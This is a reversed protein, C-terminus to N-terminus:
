KEVHFTPLTIQFCHTGLINIVPPRVTLPKSNLTPKSTVLLLKMTVKNNGHTFLLALSDLM